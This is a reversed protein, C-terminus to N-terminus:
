NIVTDCSLLQISSCQICICQCEGARISSIVQIDREPHLVYSFVSRRQKDDEPLLQKRRVAFGGLDAGMFNFADHVTVPHLIM